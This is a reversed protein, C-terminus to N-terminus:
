QNPISPEYDPDELHRFLSRGVYARRSVRINVGWATDPFVAHETGPAKAEVLTGLRHEGVVRLVSCELLLGAPLIAKDGVQLDAAVKNDWSRDVILLRTTLEKGLISERIEKPTTRACAKSQEDTLMGLSWRMHQILTEYGVGLNGAVVYLQFPDCTQCQWGRTHFAKEVAHAPMLFFGAFRDALWEDPDFSNAEEESGFYEDVKSGHDFVHHALEHACTYAQRGVPRESCVFIVPPQAKVYMGEMSSIAQFKVEIGLREELVDYICIPDVRNLGLRRRLAAAQRLAERALAIRSAM